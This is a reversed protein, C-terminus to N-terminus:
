KIKNLNNIDKIAYDIGSFYDKDEQRITRLYDQIEQNNGIKILYDYFWDSLSNISILGKQYADCVSTVDSLYQDLDNTSFKGKNQVLIPQKNDILLSIKYNTGSDLKSELRLLLDMSRNEQSNRWESIQGPIQFVVCSALIVAVVEIVRLLREFYPWNVYKKWKSM